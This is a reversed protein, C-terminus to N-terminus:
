HGHVKPRRFAEAGASANATALAFTLM